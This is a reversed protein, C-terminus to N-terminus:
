IRLQIHVYRHMTQVLSGTSSSNPSILSNEDYFVNIEAKKHWKEIADINRGVKKVSYQKSYVKPMNQNYKVDNHV